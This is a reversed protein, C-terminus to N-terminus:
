EGRYAQTMREPSVVKYGNDALWKVLRRAAQRSQDHIDHMLVIGKGRQQIQSITKQFLEDPDKTSWDLTDITWGVPVLGLETDIARVAEPTIIGYPPRFFGPKAGAAATISSKVGGLQKLIEATSFATFPKGAETAHWYGHVSVDHGDAAAKKIREKGSAGLKSGLVFFVSPANGAKLYASVEETFQGPGDDFTLIVEGKKLFGDSQVLFPVNNKVYNIKCYGEKIPVGREERAAVPGHFGFVEGLEASVRYSVAGDRRSDSARYDAGTERKISRGLEELRGRLYQGAASAELYQPSGQPSAYAISSYVKLAFYIEDYYDRLPAAGLAPPAVEVSSPDPLRLDGASVSLFPFLTTLAALLLTNKRM